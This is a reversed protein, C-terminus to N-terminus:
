WILLWKVMGYIMDELVDMQRDQWSKMIQYRYQHLVTKQKM